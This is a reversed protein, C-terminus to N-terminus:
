LYRKHQMIFLFDLLREHTPEFAERVAQLYILAAKYIRAVIWRWAIRQHLMDKFDVSPRGGYNSYWIFLKLHPM